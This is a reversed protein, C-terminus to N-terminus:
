ASRVLCGSMTTFASGGGVNSGGANTWGYLELYDSSGNFYILSSVTVANPATGTDTGRQYESGNKYLMVFARSPGGVCAFAANIQYYGAITPTFRYNTTSDFNNNTDFLESNLALKTVTSSSISYNTSVFASFAPAAATPLVIGTTGNLTM